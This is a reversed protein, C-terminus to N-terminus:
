LQKGQNKEKTALCVWVSRGARGTSREGGRIQVMVSRALASM